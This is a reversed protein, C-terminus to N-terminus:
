IILMFKYDKATLVKNLITELSRCLKERRQQDTNIDPQHFIYVLATSLFLVTETPNEIDFRGKTNGKAVLQSLIPVIREVTAKELKAHMVANIDQHLFDIFDNRQSVFRLIENIAENLLAVEDADEDQILRKVSQELDAISKEVVAELIDEKSSFYYYLTGQALNLEKVIDSIATHEYGKEMFLREAADILEQRREQPGKTIRKM